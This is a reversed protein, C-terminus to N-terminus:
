VLSGGIEQHLHRKMQAWLHHPFVGGHNIHLHDPTLTHLADTYHVESITNQSVNAFHSSPILLDSVPVNHLGHAKLIKEKKDGKLNKVEM